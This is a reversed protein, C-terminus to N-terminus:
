DGSSHSAAAVAPIPAGEALLLTSACWHVAPTSSSAIRPWCWPWRRRDGRRCTSSTGDSCRPAGYGVSRIVSTGDPKPQVAGDRVLVLTARTHGTRLRWPPLARERCRELDPSSTQPPLGASPASRFGVGRVPVEETHLPGGRERGRVRGAAAQSGPLALPARVSARAEAPATTSLASLKRLPPDSREGSDTNESARDQQQDVYADAQAQVAARNNPAASAVTASQEEALGSAAVASLNGYTEANGDLHAQQEFQEARVVLRAAEARQMQEAQGSLRASAARNSRQSAIEAAQNNLHQDSGASASARALEEAQNTLHQDSGVGVASPAAVRVAETDDSDGCAALGLAGVLAVPAAWRLARKSFYSM